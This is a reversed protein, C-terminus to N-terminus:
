KKSRLNHLACLIECQLDIVSSDCSLYDAAIKIAEKLENIDTLIKDTQITIDPQTTGDSMRLAM